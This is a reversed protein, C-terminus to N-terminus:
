GTLMCAHQHQCMIVTAEVSAMRRWQYRIHRPLSQFPYLIWHSVNKVSKFMWLKHTVTDHTRARSKIGDFCYIPTQMRWKKLIYKREWVGETRAFIFCQNKQFKRAAGNRRGVRRDLGIENLHIFIYKNDGVHGLVEHKFDRQWHM